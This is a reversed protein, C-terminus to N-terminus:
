LSLGRKKGISWSMGEGGAIGIVTQGKARELVPRWPVLTFDHAREILAFRGSSLNLARRYTGHVEEGKGIEAYGAGIEAALATGVHALERRQLTDLLNRAYATRGQDQRALGEAVLWRRRRDLAEEVAAGFGSPALTERDKSVLQRDLWTAGLATPLEELAQWSLVTVRVPTRSRNAAEHRAARDLYDTGVQWSGDQRREVHGARRLAELRRVHSAVYEHSARPDFARHLDASYVGRHRAAVRAITQDVERPEIPRARLEIIAGRALPEDDASRVGIDAYHTRGDVGDVIVYRRDRLEDSMGDAVIRGVVRTGTGQADFIAHDAAARDLGAAKLERHMTKIIDGREGLRRLTPELDARLHWVGPETEQALGLRELMRLRGVRLAHRRPDRQPKEALRLAGEAADSLIARDLRTFREQNVERELKRITELETEPGLERTVLESARARMGHSIYDRAIVLDRGCEDKGRLVIHTHPQGTNFHDVALWDLRTGLDQEMKQMLDRVFPKLDALEAGDEASVIFRFQHRDGVSRTLFAKGDARDTVADYLEGPEGERTVGDRQVYRLHARAAGLDGAKLRVVRAKVVVRRAGAARRRNAAVTGHAGGRGMRSGNFRRARQTTSAPIAKEAERLVRRVYSATQRARLDGLRGLKVEFDDDHGSM